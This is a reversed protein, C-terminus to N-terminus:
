VKQIPAFEALLTRTKGEQFSIKLETKKKGRISLIIGIGWRPHVVKQGIVYETELNNDNVFEAEKAIETKEQGPESILEEPIEDLFQSPPNM